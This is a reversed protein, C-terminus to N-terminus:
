MCMVFVNSHVSIYLDDGGQGIASAILVVTFAAVAGATCLVHLSSCFLLCHHSM